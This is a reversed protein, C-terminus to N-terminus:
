GTIPPDARMETWIYLTSPHAEGALWCLCVPVQCTTLTVSDTMREKSSTGIAGLNLDANRSSLPQNLASLHDFGEGVMKVVADMDVEAAM